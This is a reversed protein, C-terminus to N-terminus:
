NQGLYNCLVVNFDKKKARSIKIIDKGVYIENNKVEKIAKLNVLCYNSCRFFHKDSLQEEVKNLSYRTEFNGDNTHICINHDLVDIYLIDSLNFVKINRNISFSIKDDKSALFKDLIKKFKLAFMEERIPKLVFDSAEVEYGKIAFSAMNTVFIIIIDQDFERLKKCADMGNIGPLEIDMFVIDFSHNKFALFPEASEFEKIEFAISNNKSYENLCNLVKKREDLSDEVIAIRIM